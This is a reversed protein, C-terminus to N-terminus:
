KTKVKWLDKNRKRESILHVLLSRMSCHVSEELQVRGAPSLDGAGYAATFLSCWFARSCISQCWNSHEGHVINLHHSARQASLRRDQENYGGISFFLLQLTLGLENITFKERHLPDLIGVFMQNYDSHIFTGRCFGVISSLIRDILNATKNTLHTDYWCTSSTSTLLCVRVWKRVHDNAGGGGGGVCTQQRALVFCWFSVLHGHSSYRWNWRAHGSSSSEGHFKWYSPNCNRYHFLVDPHAGGLGRQSLCGSLGLVPITGQRSWQVEQIGRITQRIRHLVRSRNHAM